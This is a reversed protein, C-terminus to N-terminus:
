HSSPNLERMKKKPGDIAERVQEAERAHGQRELMAALTRLAVPRAAPTKSLARLTAQAHAPDGSKELALALQVNAGVDAAHKSVYAQYTKAAGVFDGEAWLLGGLRTQAEGYDARYSLAAELAKRAERRHGQDDAALAYLYHARPNEPALSRAIDADHEALDIRLGDKLRLRAAELRPLEWTPLDRVLADLASLAAADDGRGEAQLADRLRAGGDPSLLVATLALSLYV